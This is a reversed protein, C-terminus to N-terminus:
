PRVVPTPTSLRTGSAAPSTARKLRRRSSFWRTAWPTGTEPSTTRAVMSRRALPKAEPWAPTRGARASRSTSASSRPTQGTTRCSPDSPSDSRAGSASRAAPRNPSGSRAAPSPRAKILLLAKEVAEAASATWSARRSSSAASAAPASLRSAKAAFKLMRWGAITAARSSPPSSSTTPRSRRSSSPLKRQRAPAARLRCSGSVNREM